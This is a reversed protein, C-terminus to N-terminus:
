KTGGDEPLTRGKNALIKEQLARAEKSLKPYNYESKDMLHISFLEPCVSICKLCGVCFEPHDVSVTEGQLSQPNKRLSLVGAPCAWICEVCSKCREKIVWIPQQIEPEFTKDVM